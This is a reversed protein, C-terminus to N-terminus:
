MGTSSCANNASFILHEECCSTDVGDCTMSLAAFCGPLEEFLHMGLDKTMGISLM